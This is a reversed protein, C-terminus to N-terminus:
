QNGFLNDFEFTGDNGINFDLLSGGGSATVVDENQFYLVSIEIDTYKKM